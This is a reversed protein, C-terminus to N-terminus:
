GRGPTCVTCGYVNVHIKRYPKRYVRAMVYGNEPMEGGCSPCRRIELKRGERGSSHGEWCHPCGHIRMLDFEKGPFLVSHVKLGRPLMTGCLPCPSERATVPESTVPGSRSPRDMRTKWTWLLLALVSFIVLFILAVLIEGTM